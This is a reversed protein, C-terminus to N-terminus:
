VESNRLYNPWSINVLRRCCWVDFRELYKQDVKQITGTEAGYLATSWIYKVLKKRLNVELKSTFITDEPQISELWPLGPNLKVYWNGYNIIM